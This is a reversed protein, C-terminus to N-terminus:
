WATAGGVPGEVGDAEEVDGLLGQRERDTEHKMVMVVQGDQWVDIIGASALYLIAIFRRVRDLRRNQALPPIHEFDLPIPGIHAQVHGEYQKLDFGDTSWPLQAVPIGSVLNNLAEALGPVDDLDASAPWLTSSRSGALMQRVRERQDLKRRRHEAMKQCFYDADFVLGDFIFRSPVDAGCERCRYRSVKLEVPGGCGPCTQFVPTPDFVRSCSTCRCRGEAVMGLPGECDPCTRDALVVEYFFLRAHEAWGAVAKALGFAHDIMGARDLPPAM